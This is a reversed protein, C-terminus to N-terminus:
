TRIRSRQICDDYQRDMQTDGVLAPNARSTLWARPVLLLPGRGTHVACAHFSSSAHVWAHTTRKARSLIWGTQNKTAYQGAHLLCGGSEGHEHSGQMRCSSEVGCRSVLLLFIPLISTLDRAHGV